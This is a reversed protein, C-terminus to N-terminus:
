YLALFHGFLSHLKRCKFNLRLLDIIVLNKDLCLKQLSLKELLQRNMRELGKLQMRLIIGSLCLSVPVLCSFENRIGAM